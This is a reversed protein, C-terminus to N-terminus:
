FKEPLVNEIPINKFTYKGLLLLINGIIIYYLLLLSVKWTLISQNMWLNM